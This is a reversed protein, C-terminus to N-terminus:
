GILPVSLSKISILPMATIMESGRVFTPLTEPLFQPQFLSVATYHLTAASNNSSASITVIGIPVCLTAPNYAYDASM